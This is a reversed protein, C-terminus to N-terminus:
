IMQDHLIFFHHSNSTDFNGVTADQFIQVNHSMISTNWNAYKHVKTTYLTTYTTCKTYVGPFRASFITPHHLKNVLLFFFNAITM